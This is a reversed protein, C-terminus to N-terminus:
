RAHPPSIHSGLTLGDLKGSAIEGPTMNTSEEIAGVLLVSHKARKNFITEVSPIFGEMENVRVQPFFM